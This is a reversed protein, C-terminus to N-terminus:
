MWTLSDTPPFLCTEPTTEFYRDERTSTELANEGDSPRMCELWQLTRVTTLLDLREYFRWIKNIINNRRKSHLSIFTWHMAEYTPFYFNLADSRIYPFVVGTYRKSHLSICNWHKAVLINIWTEKPFWNYWHSAPLRQSLIRNSTAPATNSRSIVWM